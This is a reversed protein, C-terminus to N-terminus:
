QPPPQIDPILDRFKSEERITQAHVLIEDMDMWPLHQLFGTLESEELEMLEESTHSLVALCVYIHLDLINDVSLYTDWLRLICPLPLEKGFLYQLWSFAWLDDELEQAQFYTCLEPLVSRFLMMFQGVLTSLPISMFLRDLRRILASVCYFAQEPSPLLYVFPGVLSVLKPNLLGDHIYTSPSCQYCVALAVRHMTSRVKENQFFAIHPRYRKIYGMLTREEEVSLSAKTLIEDFDKRLQRQMSEDGIGLLHAWAPSRVAEPIGHQSIEQLRELDVYGEGDFIERFEEEGSAM